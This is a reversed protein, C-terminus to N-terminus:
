KWGILRINLLGLWRFPRRFALKKRLKVPLLSLIAECFLPIFLPLARYTRNGGALMKVKSFGVKRFVRSLEGVTYEKLHFGTAEADFFM